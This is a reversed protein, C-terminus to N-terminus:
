VMLPQQETFVMVKEDSDKELIDSLKESIKNLKEQMDRRFVFQRWCVVALLLLIICALFLVAMNGNM